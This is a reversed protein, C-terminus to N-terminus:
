LAWEKSVAISPVPLLNSINPHLICPGYPKMTPDYRGASYNIDSANIGVFLYKILVDNSSMSALLSSM